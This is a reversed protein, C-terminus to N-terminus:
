KLGFAYAARFGWTTNYTADGLFSETRQWRIGADIYHRHKLKFLIGMQPAYTFASKDLAYIAAENLLLTEGAEAQIYFTRILYYKLGIKLPAVNMGAAKVNLIYNANTSSNVAPFETYGVSGTVYFKDNIPVDLQIAAGLGLKYSKSFNGSTSSVDPGIAIRATDSVASYQAKAAYSFGTFAIFIFIKKFTISMNGPQILRQYFTCYCQLTHLLIFKIEAIIRKKRL